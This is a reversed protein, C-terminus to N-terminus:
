MRSHRIYEMWVLDYVFVVMDIVGDCCGDLVVIWELLDNYDNGILVDGCLM